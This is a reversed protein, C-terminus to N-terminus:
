MKRKCTMQAVRSGRTDLGVCWDLSAKVCLFSHLFQQSACSQSVSFLAIGPRLCFTKCCAAVLWPSAQVIAQPPVNETAAVLEFARCLLADGSLIAVDEGYVQPCTSHAQQDHAICYIIRSTLVAVQLPEASQRCFCTHSHCSVATMILWAPLHMDSPSLCGRCQLCTCLGREAFCCKDFRTIPPDAEDSTM